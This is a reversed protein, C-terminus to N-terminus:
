NNEDSSLIKPVRFFDDDRQPAQNLLGERDNYTKQEDLRTINKVEIARTTPEVDTTDLESLQEFYDLISSLQTSFQSEEETTLELRGLLAVKKVQEIDIM